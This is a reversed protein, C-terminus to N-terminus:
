LTTSTRMAAARRSGPCAGARSQQRPRLGAPRAAREAPDRRHVARAREWRRARRRRGSFTWREGSFTWLEERDLRQAPRDDRDTWRAAARREHLRCELLQGPLPTRVAYGPHGRLAQGLVIGPVLVEHLWGVFAGRRSAATSPPVSGRYVPTEVALGQSRGASAPVYSSLASDRSSLLGPTPACHDLGTSPKAIRNRTIEAGTFCYYSHGGPPVVRFRGGAPLASRSGLPKVAHGTIRAQVLAPEPARVLAMLGLRELEPYRRLTNAWKAWADLDAASARPNHAFFTSASVVLEEERQIGLKLTLAIGAATHPFALRAKAADTRAKAADTRAVAHAGLVSGVTGAAVCILAAARWVSKRGRVLHKVRGLRHRRSSPGMTARSGDASRPEGVSPASSQGPGQPAGSVAGAASSASADDRDSDPLATEGDSM